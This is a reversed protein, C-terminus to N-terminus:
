ASIQSFEPPESILRDISCGLTDCIAAMHTISPENEGRVIRYVTNQPVGSKEVLDLVSWQRDALMRRLNAAINARIDNTTLVETM